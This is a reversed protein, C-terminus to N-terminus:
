LINLLWAKSLFNEVSSSQDKRKSLNAGFNHIVIKHRQRNRPREPIEIKPAAGFHRLLRLFNVQSSLVEPLLFLKTLGIFVIQM